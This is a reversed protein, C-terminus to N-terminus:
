SEAAAEAANAALESLGFIEANISLISLRGEESLLQADHVLIFRQNAQLAAIFNLLSIDSGVASMVLPQVFLGATVLENATTLFDDPAEDPPEYSNIKGLALSAVTVGTQRAIADISAMLAPHEADEPIVSRAEALQARIEDLREHEAQLIALTQRHASNLTVAQERATDADRADNLRPAIGIFWTGALLGIVVLVAGITWLRSQNM